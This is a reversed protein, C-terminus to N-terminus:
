FLKIKTKTFKGRDFLDGMLFEGRFKVYPEKIDVPLDFIFTTEGSSGAPIVYEDKYGMMNSKYYVKQAEVDNEYEKGNADVIYIATNNWEHEVRKAENTVKLRVIYFNGKAKFIDSGERILSGKTVDTISYLFDDHRIKENLAATREGACSWFLIAPLFLFIIRNLKNM